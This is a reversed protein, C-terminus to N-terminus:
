HDLLSIKSQEFLNFYPCISGVIRYQIQLKIQHKSLKKINKPQVQLSQRISEM